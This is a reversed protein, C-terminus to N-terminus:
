EPSPGRQMMLRLGILILGGSAIMAFTIAEAFFLLALIAVFVPVLSYVVGATRTPGIKAVSLNFLLYGIGSVGVGMYIISWFSVASIERIQSIFNETFALVVLLFTGFLTAYFTITFGSYRESLKKVILAYVVWNAVAMLMFGDGLNIRLGILNNIDGKVLLVIVGCVAVAVGAYNIPRLRESIFIAAMGATFIPILANIIATNAIATHRLASFFFFHYGAIGFIGLLVLKYWDGRQIKSSPRRHQLGLVGLCTLAAIYRLLSATLPGLDATTYKGGIFSGAFLASTLVPLLLNKTKGNM